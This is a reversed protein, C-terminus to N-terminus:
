AHGALSDGLVEGQERAALRTVTTQCPRSLQVVEVRGGEVLDVLAPDIFVLAVMQLREGIELAMKFCVVVVRFNRTIVGTGAIGLIRILHLAPIAPGVPLM